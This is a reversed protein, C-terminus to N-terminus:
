HSNWHSKGYQQPESLWKLVLLFYYQKSQEDGAKIVIEILDSSIILSVIQQWTLLLLVSKLVTCSKESKPKQRPIKKGKIINKPWDTMAYWAHHQLEFYECQQANHTWERKKLIKESVLNITIGILTLVFESM